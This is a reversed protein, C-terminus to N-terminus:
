DDRLADVPKMLSAGAAPAVGSLLGLLVAALFVATCDGAKVVPTLGICSGAVAILAGGLLLGLIGGTAAYILAECLFLGCIQGQSAGMSQMVGIERRRERVSVLLMNTVGIGGVLMCILAVWRLVDMFTVLVSDAAEAQVQLSVANVQIGRHALLEAEARDAIEDPSVGAPVGVSIQHVMQGLWPRLLAAPVVVVTQVDMQSALQSPGLIGKCRLMIGQASFWDGVAIDLEDALTEGVLAGCSGYAWEGPLLSDGRLLVPALRELYAANCGILLAQQRKGQAEMACELLVAEDVQTHLSKRLYESDSRGLPHDNDAATVQVQDIGLRAIESKVQVRGAEGLTLVALIAAVGIAMGLVTLGSRLGSALVNQLGLKWFEFRRM